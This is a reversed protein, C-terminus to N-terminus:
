KNRRHHLWADRALKNSHYYEISKPLDQANSTIFDAFDLLEKKIADENAIGIEHLMQPNDSALRTSTVFSEGALPLADPHNRAVYDFLLHSLNLVMHSVSAIAVDHVDLAVFNVQSGFVDSLIKIFENKFIFDSERDGCIIWPKDKFIGIKSGAYGSKESGGMPHTPIFTRTTNSLESFHTGIDKKVSAVDIILQPKKVKIANIKDAADSTAHIPTAIVVLDAHKIISTFDTENEILGDHIAAQLTVGTSWGYRTISPSWRKLDKLISAGILGLGIVAVSKIHEPKFESNSTM